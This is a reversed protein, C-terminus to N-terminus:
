IRGDTRGDTRISCSEAGYLALSSIYGKLVKERLNLDLNEAFLNEKKNIAAKAMAIGSKIERTCRADDAIVGCLYSFCDVNEPQKQDIM